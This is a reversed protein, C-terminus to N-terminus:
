SRAIRYFVGENILLAPDAGQSWSVRGKIEGGPYVAASMSGFMDLEGNDDANDWHNFGYIEIGFKQYAEYCTRLITSV